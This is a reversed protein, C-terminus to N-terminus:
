RDCPLRGREIRTRVAGVSSLPVPGDLPHPATRAQESLDFSAALELSKAIVGAEFPQERDSAAAAQIILRLAATFDGHGLRPTMPLFHLESTQRISV